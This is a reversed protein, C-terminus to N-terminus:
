LGNQKLPVNPEPPQAESGECEQLTDRDAAEPKVLSLNAQTSSSARKYLYYSPPKKNTQKNQPPNNKYKKEKKKLQMLM